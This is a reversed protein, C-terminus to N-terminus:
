ANKNNQVDLRLEQALQKLTQMNKRVRTGAAKNGKEYFKSADEETEALLAKIKEFIEM